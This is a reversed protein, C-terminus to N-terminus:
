IKCIFKTLGIEPGAVTHPIGLKNLTEDIHRIGAQYNPGGRRVWVHVNQKKLSDVHEQIAMEIGKFTEAVDTFNAIAGLILLHKPHNTQADLLLRIITNAYQYTLLHDPNGSYEGYFAIENSLNRAALADAVVMSAGGGAVLPWISGNPNLARFKLSAGSSNDLSQIFQEAKQIETTPSSNPFFLQIQEESLGDTDAVIKLDAIFPQHDHWILPNIELEVLSNEVFFDYLKTILLAFQKTFGSFYSGHESLFFTLEDADLGTLLDIKLTPMTQNEEEVNSGGVNSLLLEDIDTQSRFALFWEEHASHPQYEEVIFSDLLLAQHNPLTVEAQWKSTIWEKVEEWNHNICLLGNKGRKGILVDPKAALQSTLLWAHQTPLGNLQSLSTIHILNHDLGLQRTLAAKAHYEHIKKHM